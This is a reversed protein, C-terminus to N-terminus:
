CGGSHANGSGEVGSRPVGQQERGDQTPQPSEPALRWVQSTRRAGSRRKGEAVEVRDGLLDRAADLEKARMGPGLLLLLHYRNEEGKEGLVEVIADALGEVTTARPRRLEVRSRPMPEAVETYSRHGCQLCAPVALDEPDVVLQGRCKPCTDDPPAVLM